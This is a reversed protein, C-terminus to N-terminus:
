GKRGFLGNFYSLWKWCCLIVGETKKFFNGSEMKAQKMQQKKYPIKENIDCIKSLFLRIWEWKLIKKINTTGIKGRDFKNNLM